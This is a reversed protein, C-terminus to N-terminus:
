KQEETKWVTDCSACVYVYKMNIEDYRIVIIEASPSDKAHNTTCEPNPCLMNTIRPLTPDYKTNKNIFHTFEQQSNKLQIKSVSFSNTSDKVNGCNQCYYILKNANNGDISLYLKNECVDCFNMTLCNNYYMFIYKLKM